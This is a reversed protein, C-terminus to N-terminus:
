AALKDMREKKVHNNVLGVDSWWVKGGNRNQLASAM